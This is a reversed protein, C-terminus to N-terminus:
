RFVWAWFEFGGVWLGLSKEQTWGNDRLNDSDKILKGVNSDGKLEEVRWFKISDNNCERRETGLSLMM